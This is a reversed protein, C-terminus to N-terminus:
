SGIFERRDRVYDIRVFISTKTPQNKQTKPTQQPQNDSFYHNRYILLTYQEKVRKGYSRDSRRIVVITRRDM